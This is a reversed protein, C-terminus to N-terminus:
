SLNLNKLIKFPNENSIKKTTVKKLKKSPHYKFFIENEKEHHELFIAM